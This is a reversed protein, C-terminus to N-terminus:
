VQFYGQSYSEKQGRKKTRIWTQVDKSIEIFASIPDQYEFFLHGKVNGESWMLFKVWWLRALMIHTTQAGKILSTSNGASHGTHDKNQNFNGNQNFTFSDGSELRLHTKRVTTTTEQNSGVSSTNSFEDDSLCTTGTQPSTSKADQNPRISTKLFGKPDNRLDTIPRYSRSLESKLDYSEAITHYMWIIRTTVWYSVIVDVTYHEHALITCFIGFGTQTVITWYWARYLWNVKFCSCKFIFRPTYHLLYSATTCLVITHGSYLYGGCGTAVGTAQMGGGMFVKLVHIIMDWANSDAGFKTQCTIHHGPVPLSTVVTTMCRYLYLTGACFFIRRLIILRHKHCLILVVLQIMQLAGLLETVKFAWPQYTPWIDFLLDKLPQHYNEDTRNETPPVWVVRQNTIQLTIVATFMCGLMYLAMLITKIREVPLQPIMKSSKPLTNSLTTPTQSNIIISSQNSRPLEHQRLPTPSSSNPSLSQVITSQEPVKSISDPLKSFNNNNADQSTFQDKTDCSAEDNEPENLNESLSQNNVGEIM